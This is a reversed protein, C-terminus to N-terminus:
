QPEWEFGLNEFAQIPVHTMPSPHLRYGKTILGNPLKTTAGLFMLAWPNAITPLESLRDGAPHSKDSSLL